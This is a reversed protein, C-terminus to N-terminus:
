EPELAARARKGPKMVTGFGDSKYECDQTLDMPGANAYYGLAARLRTVEDLAKRERFAIDKAAEIAKAERERLRWCEEALLEPNMVAIRKMESKSKM